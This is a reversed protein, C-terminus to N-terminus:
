ARLSRWYRSGLPLVRGTALMDCVSARVSARVHGALGLRDDRGAMCLSARVCARQIVSVVTHVMVDMNLALESAIMMDEDICYLRASEETGPSLSIRKQGVIDWVLVPMRLGRDVTPRSWSRRPPPWARWRPTVHSM